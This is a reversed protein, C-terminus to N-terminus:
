KVPNLEFTELSPQRAEVGTPNLEFTADPDIPGRLAAAARRAECSQRLTELQRAQAATPNTRTM